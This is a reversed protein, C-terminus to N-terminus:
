RAGGKSKQYEAFDQLATEAYHEIELTRPENLLDSVANVLRQAFEALKDAQNRTEILAASLRGAHQKLTGYDVDHDPSHQGGHRAFEQQAAERKDRQENNEVQLVSGRVYVRKGVDQPIIRGMFDTVNWTEGFATLFPKGVDSPKLEYYKECNQSALATQKKNPTNM